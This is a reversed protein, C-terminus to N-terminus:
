FFEGMIKGESDTPLAPDPDTYFSYTDAVRLVPLLQCAYCCLHGDVQFLSFLCNQLFSRCALCCALLLYLLDPM